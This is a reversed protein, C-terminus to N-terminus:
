LVEEKRMSMKPLITANMFTLLPPSTSKSNFVDLEEGDRTWKVFDIALDGGGGDNAVTVTCNLLVADGDMNM